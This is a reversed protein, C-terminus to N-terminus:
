SIITSKVWVQNIYDPKRELTGGIDPILIHGQSLKINSPGAPALRFGVQKYGYTIMTISDIDDNDDDDDDYILEQSSNFGNVVSFLLLLVDLSSREM